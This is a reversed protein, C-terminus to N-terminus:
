PGCPICTAPASSTVFITQATEDESSSKSRAGRGARLQDDDVVAQEPVVLRPRDVAAHAAPELREEVGVQRQGAVVEGEVRVRLDAVVREEGPLEADLHLAREGLDADAPAEGAGSGSSVNRARTRSRMPGSGSTKASPGSGTSRM